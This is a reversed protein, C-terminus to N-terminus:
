HPLYQPLADVQGARANELLRRVTPAFKDFDNPKILFETAGAKYGEATDSLQAIASYIIVPVNPDKTRVMSCLDAGDVNPMRYDFIYLDFRDKAIMNLAEHSDQAATVDLSENTGTLWIQMMECADANDDVYLIRSKNALM